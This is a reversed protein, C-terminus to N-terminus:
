ECTTLKNIVEDRVRKIRRFDYIRPPDMSASIDEFTKIAPISNCYLIWVYLVVQSQKSDAGLGGVYNHM